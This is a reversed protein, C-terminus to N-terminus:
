GKADEDTSSDNEDSADDFINFNGFKQRYKAVNSVNEMAGREVGTWAPHNHPDIDLVLTDGAKGYTSLTSFTKGNTMQIKIEHRKPHIGQKM